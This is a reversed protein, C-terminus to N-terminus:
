THSPGAGALPPIIVALARDNSSFINSEASSAILDPVWAAVNRKPVISIDNGQYRQKLQAIHPFGFRIGIFEILCPTIELDSRHRCVDLQNEESFFSRVIYQHLEHM